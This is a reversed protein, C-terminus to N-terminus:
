EYSRYEILDFQFYDARGAPDLLGLYRAAIRRGM